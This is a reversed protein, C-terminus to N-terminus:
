LLSSIKEGIVEIGDQVYLKYVLNDSESLAEKIVTRVHDICSSKGSLTSNYIVSESPMYYKDEITLISDYDKGNTYISYKSYYYKFKKSYLIYGEIFDKAYKYKVSMTPWGFVRGWDNGRRVLDTTGIALQTFEDILENELKNGFKFEGGQFVSVDSCEKAEFLIYSDINLNLNYKGLALMWGLYRPDVDQREISILNGGDEIVSSVQKAYDGLSNAYEKGASELGKYLEPTFMRGNEHMTRSSFVTSYKQTEKKLDARKFHVNSVNMKQALKEAVAVSKDYKDISTIEKEPFVRGLFCSIIGTDFGIELINDDFRDKNDLIWICIEKIIDYDISGTFIIASDYDNNKLNYLASNSINGEQRGRETIFKSLRKAKETYGAKAIWKIAEEYTKAPKIGVEKLFEEVYQGNNLDKEM